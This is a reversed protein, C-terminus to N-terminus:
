KSLYVRETKIGNNTVIRALYIGPAVAMQINNLDDQQPKPMRLVVRGAADRVEFLEVITGESFGNVFLQQGAAYIRANEGVLNNNVSTTSVLGFNIEFRNTFSGAANTTFSYAQTRLNHLVGTQNDKVYIDLSSPINQTRDLTLTYTGASSVDFGVPVIRAANGRTAMAQIALQDQGLLSYFAIDANGKMKSADMHDRADSAENSFGLLIQNFLNNSGTLNFWALENSSGVRFNSGVNATRMANTFSITTGSNAKVFFGQAVGINGDPTAGGQSGVTGGLTTWTAYDGGSNGLTANNPQSWFWLTGDLNTNATLFDAALISSPYPNGVLNFGSGTTEIAPTLSGNNFTGTFLVNGAGSASYGKGVTMASAGTLGTNSWSNSTTNFEYWDTGGVTSLTSVANPASWMNYRLNSTNGANRRISYTGSGSLTSGTGQVFRGGAAVALTGNNTLSSTGMSFSRDAAVNMICSANITVAASVNLNADFTVGASNNITLGTFSATPSSLANAFTGTGSITQATPNVVVTSGSLSSFSINSTSVLTGNNVINGAIVPATSTSNLRMVSNANVTLTGKVNISWAGLSTWRNTGSGGNITLNGFMLRGTGTYNELIFGNTNASADTSSGDGLVLTHPPEWTMHAGTTNFDFAKGSANFNPDIITITGGNVTGLNSNLQFAATGSAVSTAGTNSNVDININGGSQNFTAGSAINLNGNIDITGNSVTLTGNVSLQRNGGGTPGLVVTGGGVNMVGGSAISVGSASGGNITLTNANANLTGNVTLSGCVYPTTVGAVAVTLGSPITVPDSSTPTTGQDWTANDGWNGSTTAIFLLGYNTLSTGLYFTNDLDAIALSTRNGVPAATTGTGASSTGVADTARILRLDAVAGPFFTSDGRISMNITGSADIGDGTAIVWNANTRRSVDVGGDTFTTINTAGTTNNHTVTITGATSLATATSFAFQVQRNAGTSLVMPFYGISTGVTTPLGTTPFWRKLSGNTFGGATYSMTGAAAGSIGMTLTNGSLNITGLTMTMTGRVTVTRNAPITLGDADNLLLQTLTISGTGIENYNGMTAAGNMTSYFLSVPGDTEDYTPATTFSGAATTAGGGGMQVIPNESALSSPNGITINSPDLTGSFLNIRRVAFGLSSSVGGTNSISLTAFFAFAGSGSITAATTGSFQLTGISQGTAGAEVGAITGNNVVSGGNMNLVSATTGSGLFLYGGSNVTLTNTIVSTTSSSLRVQRSNVSGTTTIEVDYLPMSSFFGFGSTNATVGGASTSVGDGFRLKGGTISKATGTTATFATGGSASHPDIITVTGGSWNVTTSAGISFLSTGTGLNNAAQPDVNISGGSMIFQTGASSPFSIAGFMNLTGSAMRLVGSGSTFILTNNGSGYGFTGNDIRLEGTVTPSGAGTNTGVGVATISASAHNLWLRGNATCLTQSGFYPTLSSASSLRFTGATITIRNASATPANMTIVRTIDLVAAQTTGKNVVVAFFDCTAGSGSVSGDNAGFFTVTVGASTNMDFTGNNTLNGASANAATGGIGLTHTLLTGTGANFSGGANVTVNNGVVLSALPTTRYILEGSSGEGVTLNFCAGGAVDITVTHGDAITVNDSATPVVGGSWTAASSWNGSGISTIEGAALTTQSANASSTTGLGFATIRITYNTNPVLGTLNATVANAALSTVLAFNVGDTSREVLYGFENTANDTWNVTFSLPTVATFAIGSPAAPNTSPAPTFTFVTRSGDTASNLGAIAANDAFSNNVATGTNSEAPGTLNIYKSTTASAAGNSMFIPRTISTSNNFVAGYRYEFSGNSESLVLQIVSGTAATSSFPIRLDNWEVTFTRNPATGSLLFHAKGTAQIANDGGMPALLAISAGPSASGGAIVTSGFRFQGNSNISFQTYRTGMYIFGFNSPFTIVSSAVDDRYTGTAFIDTSGTM